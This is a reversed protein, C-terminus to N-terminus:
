LSEANSEKKKRDDAYLKFCSELVEPFDNIFIVFLLNGQVSAQPVGSTDQMWSSSADELVIRQSRKIM